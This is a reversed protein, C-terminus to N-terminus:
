GVFLREGPSCETLFLSGERVSEGVRESGDVDKDTDEGDVGSVFSSMQDSRRVSSMGPRDIGTGAFRHLVDLDLENETSWPRIVSSPDRELHFREVIDDHQVDLLVHISALRMRVELPRALISRYRRIILSRVSHSTNADSKSLRIIDDLCVIIREQHQALQFPM